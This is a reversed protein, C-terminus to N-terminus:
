IGLTLSFVCYQFALPQNWNIELYGACNQQEVSDLRGSQRVGRTRRRAEPLICM